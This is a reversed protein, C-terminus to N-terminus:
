EQARSHGRGDRVWADAGGRPRPGTKEGKRSSVASDKSVKVRETTAPALMGVRPAAPVFQFTDPSQFLLGVSHNPTRLILCSRWGGHGPDNPFGTIGLLPLQTLMYPLSFPLFRSSPPALLDEKNLYICAALHCRRAHSRGATKSFENLSSFTLESFAELVKPSRPIRRDAQDIRLSVPQRFLILKPGHRM